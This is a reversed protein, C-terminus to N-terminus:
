SSIVEVDANWEVSHAAKGTVRLEIEPGNAVFTADYAADTEQDARVKTVSGALAANSFTQTGNATASGGEPDTIIENDIFTGEVDQLTLTGTSGSDSDATIRGKAGSTQGTVIEGVTFNATQTDYALSAGPRRASVALHYFADNTGNRQRGVVKGVLYVRQGPKLTIAWAKTAADGDTLGFSAGKDNTKARVWATTIGMLEVDQERCDRALINFRPTTITIQVDSIQMQDFVITELNGELDIEGGMIVGRSIRLDIVTNDITEPDGDAVDLNVTNDDWICEPLQIQRAGEIIVATGTNLEFEVSRVVNNRCRADVNVFEIGTESCFDVKGGHWFNFEFAGGEGTDGVDTDGYLRAGRVCDSIYLGFWENGRGGRCFLGTEFRKIEFDNLVIADVDVADVGVSNGVQSIGDLTMRTFGARPGGIQFIAEAQTCQLTTAGRGRGRLVVGEPITLPTIDYFGEPIEVYGGGAGGAAGIAQQLTAGNTAASAGTAGVPDWSGFDRVDIRRALHAAISRTRSGGEATAVMESANEGVLSTLGPRVVGTQDVSDIRAEYAQETYIPAAFKGYSIDGEVRELLTQPNPAPNTLAEDFYIDAVTTTGARFFTVTALGYGPQWLDFLGIRVVSM